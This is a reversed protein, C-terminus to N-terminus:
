PEDEKKLTNDISETRGDTVLSNAKKKFKKLSIKYSSKFENCFLQTSSTYLTGM